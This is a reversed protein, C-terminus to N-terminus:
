EGSNSLVVDSRQDSSSSAIRGALELQMSVMGVLMPISRRANDVIFDAVESYLPDRIEHLSRLAALPNDVQLLPRSKDHRLRRAIDEPSSRLYVVSDLAALLARNAPKLVAGGGTSIVGARGATCLDHIVSAEVSRFVEEGERSFFLPVPLGVREEILEDSDFFPLRLRRALLRGVTSKGCGPLGVLVIPGDAQIM